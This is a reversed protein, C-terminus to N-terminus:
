FLASFSYNVNWIYSRIDIYLKFYNSYYFKRDRLFLLITSINSGSLQIGAAIIGSRTTIKSVIHAAFAMAIFYMTFFKLDYNLIPMLYFLIFSFLPIAYNKGVLLILLFFATDAPILYM